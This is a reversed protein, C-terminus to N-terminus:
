TVAFEPREIRSQKLEPPGLLPGDKLAASICLGKISAANGGTMYDPVKVGLLSDADVSEPEWCQCTITKM